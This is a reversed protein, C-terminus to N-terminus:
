GEAEGECTETAEKGVSGLSETFLAKGHASRVILKEPLTPLVGYVLAGSVHMSAPIRVRRLQM